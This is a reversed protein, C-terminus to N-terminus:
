TAAARAISPKLLETVRATWARMTEATARKSVDPLALQTALQALSAVALKCTPDLADVQIERVLELLLKGLAFADSALSIRDQQKAEPALYSADSAETSGASSSLFSLSSSSSSSSATGSATSTRSVQQSSSWDCLKFRLRDGKSEGDDNTPSSPVVMVNHLRIDGHVIAQDPSESAAAVLADCLDMSGLVVQRAFARHEDQSRTERGPETRRMPFTGLDWDGHRYNLVFRYLDRDGLELVELVRGQECAAAFVRIVGHPAKNWVRDQRQLQAIIRQLQSKRGVMETHERLAFASRSEDKLEIRSVEATDGYGLSDMVDYKGRFRAWDGILTQDRLDEQKWRREAQHNRRQAKIDM